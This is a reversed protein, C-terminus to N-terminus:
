QQYTVPTIEKLIFMGHWYTSWENATLTQQYDNAFAELDSGQLTLGKNEIYNIVNCNLSM